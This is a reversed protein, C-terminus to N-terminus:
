CGMTDPVLPCPMAHCPEVCRAMRSAVHMMCFACGCGRTMDPAGAAMAMGRLMGYWAMGHLGRVSRSGSGSSSGGSSVAGAADRSM